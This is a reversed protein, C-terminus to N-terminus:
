IPTGATRRFWKLFVEPCLGSGDIGRLLVNRFGTWLTADLQWPTGDQRWVALRAHYDTDGRSEPLLSKVRSM